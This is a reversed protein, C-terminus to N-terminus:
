HLRSMQVLLGSNIQKSYVYAKVKAIDVKVWTLSDMNVCKFHPKIELVQLVNTALIATEYVHFTTFDVLDEYFHLLESPSVLVLFMTVLLVLLASVSLGWYRNTTQGASSRRCGGRSSSTSLRGGNTQHHVVPKHHMYQQGVSGSRSTRWPGHVIHQIVCICHLIISSFQISNISAPFFVCEPAM